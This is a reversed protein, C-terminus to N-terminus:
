RKRKPKLILPKLGNSDIKQIADVHDKIADRACEIMLYCLGKNNIPGNVNVSGTEEEYSIRLEIM